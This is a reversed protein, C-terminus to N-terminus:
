MVKPIFLISFRQYSVNVTDNRFYEGGRPDGGGNQQM